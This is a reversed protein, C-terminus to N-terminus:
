GDQAALEDGYARLAELDADDCRDAKARLHAVVWALHGGMERADARDTEYQTWPEVGALAGVVADRLEVAAPNVDHRPWRQEDLGRIQEAWDLLVAALEAPGLTCLCKGGAALPDGYPNM